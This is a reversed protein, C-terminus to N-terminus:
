ILVSPSTQPNSSPQVILLTLTSTFMVNVLSVVVYKPVCCTPPIVPVTSSPVIEFEVVVPVNFAAVYALWPVSVFFSECEIPPITPLTSLQSEILLQKFSISILM